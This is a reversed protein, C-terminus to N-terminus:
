FHNGHNAGKGGTFNDIKQFDPKAALDFKSFNETNKTFEEFSEYICISDENIGICLGNKLEVFDVYFGGGNYETFIKNIFKM